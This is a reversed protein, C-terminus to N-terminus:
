RHEIQETRQAPSAVFGFRGAVQNAPLTGIMLAKDPRWTFHSAGQALADTSSAHATVHQEPSEDMYDAFLDLDHDHLVAVRVHADATGTGADGIARGSFLVAGQDDTWCTEPEWQAGTQDTLTLPSAKDAGSNSRALRVVFPTYELEIYVRQPGNQFFWQGQEDVDYNRVIFAILAAHRVLSGLGNARQVAEDRMRWGGRRDLMLWGFCAPVNPWKALAQRVIDDM